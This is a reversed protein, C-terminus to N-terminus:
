RHDIAFISRNQCTGIRGIEKKSKHSDQWILYSAAGGEGGGLSFGLYPLERVNPTSRLWLLENERNRLVGVNRRVIPAGKVHYMCPM